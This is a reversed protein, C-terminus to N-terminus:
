PLFDDFKAQNDNGANLASLVDEDSGASPTADYISPMGLASISKLDYDSVDDDDAAQDEVHLVGGNIVSVFHGRGSKIYLWADHTVTENECLWVYGHVNKTILRYYTAALLLSRHNKAKLVFEPLSKDVISDALMLCFAAYASQKRGVKYFYETEALRTLADVCETVPKTALLEPWLALYLNQFTQDSYGFNSCIFHKFKAQENTPGPLDIKKFLM